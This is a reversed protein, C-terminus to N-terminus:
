NCVKKDSLPFFSLTVILIHLSHFFIVFVNQLFNGTVIKKEFIIQLSYIHINIKIYKQILNM